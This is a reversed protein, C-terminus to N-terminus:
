LMQSVETVSRMLALGSEITQTEEPFVEKTRKLNGFLRSEVVALKSGFLTMTEGREDWVVTVVLCLHSNQTKPRSPLYAHTLIPRGFDM